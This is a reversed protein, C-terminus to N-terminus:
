LGGTVSQDFSVTSNVNREFTNNVIQDFDITSQVSRGCIVNVGLTQDFTITEQVSASFFGIATQGFSVSSIVSRDFVAISAVSQKFDVTQSVAEVFMKGTNQEFSVSSWVTQEFVQELPLGAIERGIVILGTKFEFEHVESVTWRRSQYIFYDDPKIIFDTPLDRIDVIFSRASTDFYGGFTFQKNTAIFSLDYVFKKQMVAPLIIARNVVVARKTAVKKGTEVDVDSTIIQYITVPFGWQRKLAYLVKRIMRTAQQRM